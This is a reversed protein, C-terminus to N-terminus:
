ISETIVPEFLFMNKVVEIFRKKIFRLSAGPPSFSFPGLKSTMVYQLAIINVPQNGDGRCSDDRVHTHSM